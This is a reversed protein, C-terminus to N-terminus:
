KDSTMMQQVEEISYIPKRSHIVAHCNPCVPRLDALPNVEYEEGISSLSCLHHVHIFGKVTPGYRESFDIRCISCRTGYHAICAERAQPNREYANVSVQYIRGERFINKDDVEDPFIHAERITVEQKITNRTLEILKGLAKAINEPKEQISIKSLLKGGEQEKFWNTSWKIKTAGGIQLDKDHFQKLTEALHRFYSSPYKQPEYPEIHFEVGIDHEYCLFEYHIDNHVDEYSSYYFFPKWEDCMIQVYETEKKGIKSGEAAYKDRYIEVVEKLVKKSAEKRSM